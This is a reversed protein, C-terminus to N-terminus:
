DQRGPPGRFLYLGLNETEFEGTFWIEGGVYLTKKAADVYLSIGEDGLGEDLRNWKGQWYAIGSAQTSKDGVVQFSGTVILKDDYVLLDQVNATFTGDRGIGGEFEYWQGTDADYRWLNGEIYGSLPVISGGAILVDEEGEYEMTTLGNIRSIFGIDQWYIDDTLYAVSNDPYDADYWGGVVLRDDWETFCHVDTPRGAGVASWTTGDWRAINQTTVSGAQAFRGGAYLEDEFVYLAYVEPYFDGTVGSGLAQWGTWSNWKAINNAVVSGAMDFRGAVILDGNFEVMANVRVPNEGTLRTDLAHWVSGDFAAINDAYITGSLLGGVSDFEGGVILGNNFEIIDYVPGDTGGHNIDSFLDKWGSDPPASVAENISLVLTFILLSCSVVLSTIKTCTPKISM